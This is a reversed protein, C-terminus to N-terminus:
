RPTITPWAPGTAMGSPPPPAPSPAPDAQATAPKPHIAAVKPKKPAPKKAVPPPPPNPQLEVFIPNPNLHPSSSSFEESRVEAPKELQVPVTQAVYGNLAVTITGDNMPLGLTCPTRCTAGTVTRADAGPPESEIRVQETPPAPKFASMDLSPMWSPTWSSCGSMLLGCAAVAVVRGMVKDTGRRVRRNRAGRGSSYPRSACPAIVLGNRDVCSRM